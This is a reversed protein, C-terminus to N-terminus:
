VMLFDLHSGSPYEVAPEGRRFVRAGSLGGLSVRRDEVVLWAGERLGVVPRRNEEHFEAIRQERTEGM